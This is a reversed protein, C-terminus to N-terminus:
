TRECWIKIYDVDLTGLGADAGKDLSFYPQMFAEAATLNSMDFTAGTGVNAGDFYFRVDALTRFDIQFVHFETAVLTTSDADEDDNDNTTDDTECLLVGDGDLKFWAHETVADKDLNHDGAMGFVIQATLTPLVGVALRCEFLLAKSVDFPRVDDMHLAADEAIVDSDFAARLIGIGAEADVVAMAANLEVEVTSWIEPITADGLFDEEFYVLNEAAGRISRRFTRNERTFSPAKSTFSGM